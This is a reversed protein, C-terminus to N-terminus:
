RLVRLEDVPGGSFLRTTFREIRKLGATAFAREAQAEFLVREAANKAAEAELDAAKAKNVAIESEHLPRDKTESM